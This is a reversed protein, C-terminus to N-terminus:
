PVLPNFNLQSIGAGTLFTLVFNLIVYSLFVLVLGVIAAIITNRAGEVNGKDGGSTIWKIGGYVLFGLSIIVAIVFFVEVAIGIFNGLSADICYSPPNAGECLNVETLTVESLTSIQPQQPEQPEAHITPSFLYLAVLAFVLLAFLKHM